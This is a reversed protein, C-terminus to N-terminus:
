TGSSGSIVSVPVVVVSTSSAVGSSISGSSVVVVSSGLGSGDGSVVSSGTTSV